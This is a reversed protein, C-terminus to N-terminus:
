DNVLSSSPNAAKGSTAAYNAYKVGVSLIPLRPATSATQVKLDLANRIKLRRKRCTSYRLAYSIKRALWQSFDILLAGV